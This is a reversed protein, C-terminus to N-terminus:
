LELEMLRALAVIYIKLSRLVLAKSVGENAGHMPGVFDPVPEKPEEMGFSVACDFHRAYTGGGMTFPKENKGTVENYTDILTRIAPSTPEIYFPTRQAGPEFVAGGRAALADLGSRMEDPTISTPYRIDLTQTIVGDEMAVTGGVCTLPTFVEDAAAIGATSGDTVSLLCRQMELYKAEEPTVLSHDLLYGAVLGIANITGEPMAAHGSIGHGTVRVLGEGEASLEIRDAAPLKALDAKVVAYARDPVANTAVGGRFDVLNGDFKPSILKGGYGGKEGYGVPFEGDPTFCFAPQPESALYHDVDEMGTEESTGFLLRLTYPLQVGQERLFKAAYMAVVAPGKDDATGRGIIYGDKEIMCFPDSNWGNGAPVVDLHAIVAIQKDSAGKLDAVGMYGNVNKTELGFGRAMELATDLAKAVGEGSPMGPKGETQVSDIDVVRKIDAFLADENEQIFVDAKHLLNEIM